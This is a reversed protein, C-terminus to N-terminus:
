QAKKAARVAAAAPKSAGGIYKRRQKLMHSYLIVSGPIYTVLIAALVWPYYEHLGEAPGLFARVIMAVESSIGVPYLVLFGSYRMWELHEPVADVQKLTFFTYRVVETISWAILMSSYWPSANLGPFPHSIGWVLVLRSAVQMVTTFLPAPVVGTLAHLIEMAAFTQTIRAFREVAPSVASAGDTLLLGVVRNLLVAWSVASLANYAILYAKRPGFGASARSSPM